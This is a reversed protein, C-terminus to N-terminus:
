YHYYYYHRMSEAPVKPGRGIAGSSVPRLIPIRDHTHVPATYRTGLVRYGTVLIRYRGQRGRTISFRNAAGEAAEGVM